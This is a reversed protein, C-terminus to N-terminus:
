CSPPTRCPSSSCFFMWQSQTRDSISILLFCVDPHREAPPPLDLFCGNPNLEAPPHLYSVVWQFDCRITIACVSPFEISLSTWINARVHFHIVQKIRSSSGPNHAFPPMSNAPGKCAKLPPHSVPVRSQSWAQTLSPHMPLPSVTTAHSTIYHPRFPLHTPLSPPAPTSSSIPWCALFSDRVPEHFLSQGQVAWQESMAASGETYM